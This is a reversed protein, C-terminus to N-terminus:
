MLMIHDLDSIYFGKYMILLKLATCIQEDDWFIPIYAKYIYVRFGLLHLYCGQLLYKSGLTFSWPSSYTIILYLDKHVCFNRFLNNEPTHLWIYVSIIM